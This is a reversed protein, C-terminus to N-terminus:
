LSIEMEMPKAQEWLMQYRSNLAGYLQPSDNITLDFSPVDQSSFQFFVPEVRIIGQPSDVDLLIVTSTHIVSYNKLEINKQVNKHLNRYWFIIRNASDQLFEEVNPLNILNGVNELLVQKDPNKEPPKWAALKIKVGKLAFTVRIVM